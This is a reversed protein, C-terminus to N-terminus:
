FQPRRPKPSTFFKSSWNGNVKNNDNNTATIQVVNSNKVPSFPIDQRASVKKSSDENDLRCQFEYIAQKVEMANKTEKPTM